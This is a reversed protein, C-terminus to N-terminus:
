AKTEEKLKKWRSSDMSADKSLRFPTKGQIDEFKCPKITPKYKKIADYDSKREGGVNLTGVFSSKIIIAIAEALESAPMMSTYSDTAYTDYKINKPDFFRTRIICFNQLMNVASEAGLKTWGYKNYPFTPSGESYNGETSQYVGDTSIHIFRINKRLQEQKKMAARVLNATGITNAALAESPNKEC